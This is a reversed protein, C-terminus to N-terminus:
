KKKYEFGLKYYGSCGLQQLKKLARGGIINDIFCSKFPLLNFIWATIGSLYDPLPRKKMFPTLDQKEVLFYNNNECVSVFNNVTTYGHAHWHKRFLSTLKVRKKLPSGSDTIFDDIVVFLSGPGSILNLNKCLKDHDPNHQMSEVAYFVDFIDKNEFWSSELFDEADVDTDFYEAIETQVRSVTIGRYEAPYRKKLYRITGGVGCGLDLIREAKKRRIIELILMNSYFEAEATKGTGPPYLKRHIAGSEKKRKLFQSTNKDYYESIASIENNESNM